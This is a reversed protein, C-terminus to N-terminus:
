FIRIADSPIMAPGDVWQLLGQETMVPRVMSGDIEEVLMAKFVITTGPLPFLNISLTARGNPTPSAYVVITLNHFGAPRQYSGSTFQPSIIASTFGSASIGCYNQISPTTGLFNDNDWILTALGPCFTDQFFLTFPGSSDFLFVQRVDKRPPLPGQLPVCNYQVQLISWLLLMMMMMMTQGFFMSSQQCIYVRRKDKNKFIGNWM